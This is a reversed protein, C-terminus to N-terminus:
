APPRQPRAIDEVAHLVEAITITHLGSMRHIIRHQEGPPHWRRPQNFNGFLGVCHVGAAAALHLPGSDHGIFAAAHRMAAASERPSLKGCADIVPGEGWAEAIVRARESDEGAGVILLGTQPRRRALEALLGQWNQLGWDKEKAKGGMNIAFYPTGDLPLLVSDGVALERASLRLTWMQPDGLDIPGLAHLCRTLRECEREEIRVDEPTGSGIHRCVQLDPTLPAGVIKRFGCFRFFLWDRYANLLGRAPTLYVLVDARLSRLHKALIWLEAISRTGVPYAVAADILGGERLIVELPAAKSSVPFNTLVIREADPWVQAVKHFCPLAVVTDGLSGLRYIVIRQKKPSKPM